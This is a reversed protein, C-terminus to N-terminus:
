KYAHRSAVVVKTDMTATRRAQRVSCCVRRCTVAYAHAAAGYVPPTLIAAQAFHRWSLSHVPINHVALQRVHCASRHLDFSALKNQVERRELFENFTFNLFNSNHILKGVQHLQTNIQTSEAPPTKCQLVGGACV